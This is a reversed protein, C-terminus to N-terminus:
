KFCGVLYSLSCDSNSGRFNRICGVDFVGFIDICFKLVSKFGKM